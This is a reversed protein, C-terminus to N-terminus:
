VDDGEGGEEAEDRAPATAEAGFMETIIELDRETLGNSSLERIKELPQDLIRRVLRKTMLHVAKDVRRSLEPVTEILSAVEEDRIAEAQQRISLVLPVVEQSKAWVMFERAEDEAIQEVVPLECMRQDAIERAFQQLDDLDYLYVDDIERVQPEVDRPVALDLLLMPRRRGAGAAAEIRRSTVLPHPSSTSAIVVDAVMLEDTFESFDVATGGIDAALAEAREFTRSIVTLNSAGNDMMRRAVLAGMEGAGLVLVRRLSLDDFIQRALDAAVSAVSMCGKDIKTETRVRKGVSLARDGLRSLVRGATGAQRASDLARRLQGMIETEGLVMSDAGSAVKFVHAVADPGHLVYSHGHFLEDPVGLVRSYIGQPDDLPHGNQAVLYLESRNCTSLMLAEAVGPCSLALNLRAPLEQTSVALRERTEVGATEHNVGVLTITM